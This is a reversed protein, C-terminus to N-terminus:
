FCFRFVKRKMKKGAQTVTAYSVERLITALEMYVLIRLYKVSMSTRLVSKEMEKRQGGMMALVILVVREILAHEMYVRITTVNTSIRLATEVKVRTWGM